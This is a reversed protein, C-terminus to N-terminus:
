KYLMKGIKWALNSRGVLRTLREIGNLVTSIHWVVKNEKGFRSMLKGSTPSGFVFFVFFFVQQR